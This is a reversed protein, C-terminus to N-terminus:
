NRRAISRRWTAAEWLRLEVSPLRDIVRQAAPLPVNADHRSHYWVVHIRVQEPAIDWDFM